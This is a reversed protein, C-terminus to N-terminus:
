RVAAFIIKKMITELITYLVSTTELIMEPRIFLRGLIRGLVTRFVLYALSSQPISVRYTFSLITLNDFM